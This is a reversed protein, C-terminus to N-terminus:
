KRYRTRCIRFRAVSVLFNENPTAFVTIYNIKYAEETSDRAILRVTYKGYATYTTAPNQLTSTIGNGFDWFWSTPSGTSNDQFSVTLPSCGQMVSASFDAKLQALVPCSIILLISLFCKMLSRTYKIDNEVFKKYPCFFKSNVFIRSFM